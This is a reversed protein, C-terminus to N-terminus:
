ARRKVKANQRVISVLLILVCNRAQYYKRETVSMKLSKVTAQRTTAQKGIFTSSQHIKNQKFYSVKVILMTKKLM